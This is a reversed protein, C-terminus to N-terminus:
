SDESWTLSAIRWGEATRALQMNKWGNGAYWNGNLCGTETYRSLRHAAGVSIVTQENTERERYDTLEGSTLLAVRPGAFDALGYTQTVVGTKVILAGPLFFEDIFGLDTKDVNAFAAFFRAAFRDIEQKDSDLRDPQPSREAALVSWIELDAPPSVPGGPLAQRLVGDLTMGLREALHVSRGNDASAQWEIRVLGRETMAWDILIGVARTALGKGVACPELWCGIEGIGTAPDLSVFMVGGVLNGDMWIGHIGGGGAALAEAYWQLVARASELDTAVFRPSVWPAIYERARDLHALFEAALWPSLPRLEARSSISRAYM